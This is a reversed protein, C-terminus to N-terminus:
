HPHTLARSILLASLHQEAAAPFPQALAYTILSLEDRGVAYGLLDMTFPISHGLINMHTSIRLAFSDEAGNAPLSMPLVHVDTITLPTGNSTPITVGNLAQTLCAQARGTRILALDRAVASRSSEIAAESKVQLATLGAGAKFEPSSAEAQARTHGLGQVGPCRQARANIESDARSNHTAALVIFGPVDSPRLNIARAIALQPSTGGLVGSLLVVLLAAAALGGALLVRRRRSRQPPATPQHTPGTAGPPPVSTLARDPNHADDPELLRPPEISM